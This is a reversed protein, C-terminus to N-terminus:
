EVVVEQGEKVYAAGLTIIKEHEKLGKIFFGKDDEDVIDVNNIHVINNEDVTKISVRGSSDLVISSKPQYHLAYKEKSLIIVEASTGIAFYNDKNDLQVEVYFTRTDPNAQKSIFKMKGFREEHTYLKRVIVESDMDVMEVKNQPIDAYVLIPDLTSFKAVINTSNMSSLFDGKHILILDIFGDFPAKVVTKDFDTKAKELAAEAARFNSRALSLANDSSLKKEYLTQTSKLNLKASELNFIATDYLKKKDETDLVAIISGKKLFEGDKAVVEHVKGDVEAKLDITNLSKLVGSLKIPISKYVAHSEVTKVNALKNVNVDDHTKRSFVGSAMWLVFALSIIIMVQTSTNLSRFKEYKHLTKDRVRKIM